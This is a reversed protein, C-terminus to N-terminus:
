GGVHWHDGEYLYSVGNRTYRGLYIPQKDGGMIYRTLETTKALDVVPSGPGHATGASHAWSETGGTITLPCNCGRQTASVYGTLLGRISTCNTQGVTACDVGPHNTTVNAPFSSPFDGAIQTWNAGQPHGGCLNNSCGQPQDVSRIEVTVTVNTLSGLSTSLLDPNIQYLITWAGLALLLGFIAHTIREKGAEKSSILETTMYQIGGIVIMVVALVACIGIFIKIMLNLYGGINNENAGPDYTTLQGNVCGATGNECPLPALLHYNTDPNVCTKGQLVQTPPCATIPTSSLPTQASVNVVTSLLGMTIIFLFIYKTYKM